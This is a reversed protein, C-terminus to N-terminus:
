GAVAWPSVRIFLHPLFWSLPLLAALPPLAAEPGRRNEGLGPLGPGTTLTLLVQTLGLTARLLQGGERPARKRGRGRTSLSGGLFLGQAGEAGRDGPRKDLISERPLEGESCYIFYQNGPTLCSAILGEVEGHYIHKYCASTLLAWRM